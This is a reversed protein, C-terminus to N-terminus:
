DRLRLCVFRLKTRTEPDAAHDGFPLERQHLTQSNMLSLSANSRVGGREPIRVLHSSLVPVGPLRQNTNDLSQLAGMVGSAIQGHFKQSRYSTSRHDYKRRSTWEMWVVPIGAVVQFFGFPMTLM